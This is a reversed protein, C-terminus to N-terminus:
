GEDRPLRAQHQLPHHLLLRSRRAVVGPRGPRGAVLRGAPTCRCCGVSDDHTLQPSVRTRGLRRPYGAAVGATQRGAGSLCASCGPSRRSRWRCSTPWCWLRVRGSTQPCRRYHQSQGTGNAPSDELHDASAASWRSSGPPYHTRFICCLLHRQGLDLLTVRDLIGLGTLPEGDGSRRVAGRTDSVLVGIAVPRDDLPIADVVAVVSWTLVDIGPTNDIGPESLAEDSPLYSLLRARGRSRSRGTRVPLPPGM